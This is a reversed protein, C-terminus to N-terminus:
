LRSVMRNLMKTVEVLQEKAWKRNDPTLTNAKVAAEMVENVWTSRNYNTGQLMKELGEVNKEDLWFNYRKKM